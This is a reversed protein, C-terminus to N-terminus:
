NYNRLERNSPKPRVIEGFAGQWVIRHSFMALPSTVLTPGPSGSRSEFPEPLVPCSHSPRLRFTPFSRLIMLLQIPLINSPRSDFSSLSPSRLRRVLRSWPQERDGSSSFSGHRPAPAMYPIPHAPLLTTVDSSCPFTYCLATPLSSPPPRLVYTFLPLRRGRLRSMQHPCLFLPSSVSQRAGDKLARKRGFLRRWVAFPSVLGSTSM